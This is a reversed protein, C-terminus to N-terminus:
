RLQAFSTTVLDSQPLGRCEHRPRNEQLRMVDRHLLRTLRFRIAADGQDFLKLDLDQSAHDLRTHLLQADHSTM